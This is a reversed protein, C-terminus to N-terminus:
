MNRYKPFLSERSFYILVSQPYFREHTVKMLKPFGKLAEKANRLVIQGSITENPPFVTIEGNEWFRVELIMGYQTDISDRESEDLENLILTKITDTLFKYGPYLLTDDRVLYNIHRTGVVKGEKLELYQEGEHIPTYIYYGLLEGTLYKITDTVWNAFVRNSGFENKVLDESIKRCTHIYILFLSDNELKWIAHYNNATCLISYDLKEDVFKLTNLNFNGIIKNEKDFFYQELPRAMLETTDGNVIIQDFTGRSALLNKSLLVFIIFTIIRIQEM